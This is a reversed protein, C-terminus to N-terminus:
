ADKVEIRYIILLLVLLSQICKPKRCHYVYIIPRNTHVTVPIKTRSFFQGLIFIKLFNKDWPIFIKTRPSFIKTMPCYNESFNQGVWIFNTRGWMPCFIESFKRFIKIRPYFNEFIKTRPYFNESFKTRPYFKESLKQGLIFIKLYNKGSFKQGGQKEQRKLAALQM